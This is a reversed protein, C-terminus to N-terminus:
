RASIFTRPLKKCDPTSRFVYPCDPRQWLLREQLIEMAPQTLHVKHEKGAKMRHEPITIVRNDLDVESWELWIIENSRLFTVMMFKLLPVALSPFECHWIARLEDISPYDKSQTKKIGYRSPKVNVIPNSTILGEIQADTLFNRIETLIVGAIKLQGRAVAREVPELAVQATIADFRTQGMWPLIHNNWASMPVDIRKLNRTRHNIWKDWYTQVTSRDAMHHDAPLGKDINLQCDAAKARAETLSTAPYRGLNIKKLKANVRSVFYFTKVGKPSVRVMLGTTAGDRYEGPKFSNLLATTFKKAM